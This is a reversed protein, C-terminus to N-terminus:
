CPLLLVIFSYVHGRSVVTLEKYYRLNLCFIYTKFVYLYVWKLFWSRVRSLSVFTTTILYNNFINRKRIKYVKDNESRLCGRTELIVKKVRM